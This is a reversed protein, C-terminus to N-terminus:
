GVGSVVNKFEKQEGGVWGVIGEATLIKLVVVTDDPKSLLLGIHFRVELLVFISDEDITEQTPTRLLLSPTAYVCRRYFSTYLGGIKM